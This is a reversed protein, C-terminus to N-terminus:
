LDYDTVVSQPPQGSWVRQINQYAFAGRRYWTDATTGASHPSLLVNDLPMLASDSAIPEVEFADLGAGAIRKEGLAVALAQEDILAGRSTNIILATPKMMALRERSVIHHTDTTLPAHLTLVDSTRFLEDLSVSTVGLEREHGASLRERSYYQVRADFAQVRRAVKQGINGLGLVGVVKNALEFTNTGDVGAAWKGQRVTQDINIVRRYLALIMLVAQDAVAWSNAGGNNACPITLERLLGLNMGDYGAALLQVLRVNKASRLLNESLQARYNIIFDADRVAEIQQEPPSKGDIAITSFGAPACSVITDVLQQQLGHLFVIKPNKM